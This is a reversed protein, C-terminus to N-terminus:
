DPLALRHVTQTTSLLAAQLQKNLMSSNVQHASGDGLGINGALNHIDKTWGATDNSALNLVGKVAKVTMSTLNRDGSLITQPNTEDADLGVFYSLHFNNTFQHWDMTRSRSQDANCALIRPSNLENSLIQFHRWVEGTLNFEMTGGNTGSAELQVPFKEGHDNAWIRFALGIQKLNSICKIRTGGRCTPRNLMPLVVGLFMVATMLVILLDWGTFAGIRVRLCTIKM